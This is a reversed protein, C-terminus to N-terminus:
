RRSPIWRRAMAACCSLMWERCTNWNRNLCGGFKVREGADVVSKNANLTIM